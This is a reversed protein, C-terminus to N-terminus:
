RGQKIEGWTTALTAHFNVSFNLGRIGERMLILVEEQTLAVSWIRFEDLKGFFFDKFGQNAGILFGGTICDSRVDGGTKEEGAVIGDIYVVVHSEDQIAAFHHWKPELPRNIQVVGNIGGQGYYFGFPIGNLNFTIHPRGDDKVCSTLDSRKNEKDPLPEFAFDIAYANPPVREFAEVIVAGGNLLLGAPTNLWGGGWGPRSINGQFQNKSSDNAIAGQGEDFAFYLILDKDPDVALVVTETLLFLWVVLLSTFWRM